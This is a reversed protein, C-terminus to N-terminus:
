ARDGAAPTTRAQTLYLVVHRADATLLKDVVIIIDARRRV